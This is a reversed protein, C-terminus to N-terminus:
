ISTKMQHEWGVVWGDRKKGGEMETYGRLTVVYRDLFSTIDRM